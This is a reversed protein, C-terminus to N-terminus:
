DPLLMVKGLARVGSMGLSLMWSTLFCKLWGCGLRSRSWWRLTLMSMVVGDEVEEVSFLVLVVVDGKEWNMSSVSM